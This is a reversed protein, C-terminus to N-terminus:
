GNKPNRSPKKAIFTGLILLLPAILWTPFEPVPVPPTTVQIGTPQLNSISQSPLNLLNYATNIILQSVGFGRATFTDNFLQIFNLQTGASMLIMIIADKLSDANNALNVNKQKMLTFLTRYPAWGYKQMISYLLSFGCDGNAEQIKLASYNGYGLESLVQTSAMYPFPSAMEGHVSLQQWYGHSDSWPWGGTVQGQFFNALEHTIFSHFYFDNLLVTTSM